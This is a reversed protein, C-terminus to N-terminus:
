NTTALLSRISCDTSFAPLDDPIQKESQYVLVVLTLMLPTTILGAVNDPSDGIADTIETIRVANLSLAKLFPKHDSPTLENISATKFISLKQIENNPRSSVIIQLEPYKISLNEIEFVTEKAVDAGLEDFGDLLLVMKGSLALHDFIQYNVKVDYLSLTRKILERLSTEKAVKRLELFVPLRKNESKTIEQVALYRMLMSKGQGVVGEIVTNGWSLSDTNEVSISQHNKYSIRCPYYVGRLPISEEPSWITRVEEISQLKRALKNSFGKTNWKELALKAEGKAGEYLDKILPAALKAITSVTIATASM